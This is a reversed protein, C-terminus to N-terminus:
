EVVKRATPRHARAFASLAEDIREPSPPSAIPGRVVFTRETPSTTSASAGGWAGRLSALARRYWPQPPPPPAPAEAKPVDSPLSLTLRWHDDDEADIRALITVDDRTVITTTPDDPATAAVPADRYGGFRERAGFRQLVARMAPLAASAPSGVHVLLATGNALGVFLEDDNVGAVAATADAPLSITRGRGNRLDFIEVEAGAGVIALRPGRLFALAAIHAARRRTVVGGSPLSALVVDDGEHYALIPADLAFAVPKSTAPATFAIGESAGSIRLVTVQQGPGACAVFDGTADFAVHARDLSDAKPLRPLVSRVSGDVPDRLTVAGSAGVSVLDGRSSFAAAVDTRDHVNPVVHRVKASAVDFLRLAGDRGASVLTRGDPSFALSDMYNENGPLAHLHSGDAASWLHITHDFGGATALIAGDSTLAIASVEDDHGPDRPEYAGADLDLIRLHHSVAVALRRESLFAMPGWLGAGPLHGVRAGSQLDHWRVGAWGGAMAYYRPSVAYADPDTELAWTATGGRGDDVVLKSSVDRGILVRGDRTFAVRRRLGDRPSALERKHGSEVDFVAASNEYGVAVQTGDQSFSLSSVPGAGELRRVFSGDAIRLLDVHGEDKPRRTAALLGARHSIAIPSGHEDSTFTAEARGIQWRHLYAYASWLTDADAFALSDATGVLEARVAGTVADLIRIQGDIDDTSIAVWAGDPSVALGEIDSALRFVPNGFSRM